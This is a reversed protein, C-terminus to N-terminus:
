ELFLLIHCLTHIHTNSNLAVCLCQTLKHFPLEHRQSKRTQKLYWSFISNLLNIQQDHTDIHWQLCFCVQGEALLYNLTCHHCIPQSFRGRIPSLSSSRNCLLETWFTFLLYGHIDARVAKCPRRENAAHRSSILLPTASHCPRVEWEAKWLKEWRVQESKLTPPCPPMVISLVFCRWELVRVSPHQFWLTAISWLLLLKLLMEAMLHCCVVHDKNWLM